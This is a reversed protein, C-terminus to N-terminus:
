MANEDIDVNDESNNAEDHLLEFENCEDEALSSNRAAIAAELYKERGERVSKIVQNFMSIRATYLTHSNIHRYCKQSLAFYIEVRFHAEHAKTMLLQLPKYPRRKSQRFNGSEVGTCFLDFLIKDQYMKPSILLERLEEVSGLHKLNKHLRPPNDHNTTDLEGEIINEAM